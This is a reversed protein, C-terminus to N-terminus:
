RKKQQKAWSDRLTVTRNFVPRDPTTDPDVCFYGNREFQCVFGAEAGRLAPELKSDTLIELSDPNLHASLDEGEEPHTAAFLTDYLRVEADAAHEASVWHITGKVKRGDPASGGRTEPDYTCRVEVVEGSEDKVVDTCTVLYAYRLRVERGPAMRFFKRPPEEMFDDREIWLERGFPVKRTGAAEDEPNNVADFEETEGEPYNEIVLRLPRLVGYRRPATRNLEDRVAHELRALEVTNDRKAMGVGDIFSRVAAPPYGRRRMGRLSPMRPDDWGTVHGEEVLRLLKRKSMLTHTLNMRAFEIQRPRDDPDFGLADLCWDYLPRHLEFEISCLSFTVGEIADSQGHAWDYMPYICWDDGTRPHTAYKIRYLAPDRM